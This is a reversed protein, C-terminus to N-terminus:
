ELSWGTYRARQDNTAMGLAMGLALFGVWLRLVLSGFFRLALSRSLSFLAAEQAFLGFAAGELRSLRSGPGRDALGTNTAVAGLSATM